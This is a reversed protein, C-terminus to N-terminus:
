RWRQAYNGRRRAPKRKARLQEGVTPQQPEQPKEEKGKLAGWVPRLILLAAYAYVFCDWAENRTRKKKWYQVKNGRVMRTDRFESTLQEYFERDLGVPFHVVGDDNLRDFLRGKIFDLGINFMKPPKPGPTRPKAMAWAGPRGPGEVGKIAYFRRGYRKACYEYVRDTEYGSDIAASVLPLSGSPHEFDATNLYEDLRRYESKLATDAYIDEQHVFWCETESWAWVHVEFRDKQVDVGATLLEADRPVETGYIEATQALGDADISDDKPDWTEGLSTNVWTKLQETDGKAKLFDEIVTAWTSWPSYFENIHFGAIGSFEEGAVWEGGALMGQKASETAYCGCESCIWVPDDPTGIKSFDFDKFWLPGRHGCDPCPVHYRRKDSKDFEKEVRSHGKVTPTSGILVKRNWFTLSRKKGISIPDGEAGASAPYRDVEDFLLIRIPRSALGAASNAGTITAHGGLFKKHLLTNEGDKSRAAAFLQKIADTDRIMPALRDKSFAQGMELTPQVCLIPSPDQHAYYGIANLLIETWGVQGSKM